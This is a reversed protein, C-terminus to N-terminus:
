SLLGDVFQHIVAFGQQIKPSAGTASSFALLAVTATILVSAVGLVKLTRIQSEAENRLKRVAEAARRSSHRRAPKVASLARVPRNLPRGESDFRVELVTRRAAAWISNNKNDM